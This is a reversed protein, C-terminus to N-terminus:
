EAPQNVNFRTITLTSDQTLSTHSLNLDAGAVGIAGDFRIATSSTGHCGTGSGDPGYFRFWGAVGSALIVGQWAPTTLPLVGSAATGFQLGDDVGTGCTSSIVALKVAGATEVADASSPQSGTYIEMKGGNMAEKLTSVGLMAQRLGTTLRFAM